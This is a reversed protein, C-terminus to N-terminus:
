RTMRVRRVDREAPTIEIKASPKSSDAPVTNGTLVILGAKRAVETVRVRARREPGFRNIEKIERYTIEILDGQKVRSAGPQMAVLEYMTHLKM